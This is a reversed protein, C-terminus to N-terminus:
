KSCVYYRGETAAVGCATASESDETGASSKLTIYAQFRNGSDSDQYLCTSPIINSAIYQSLSGAIASCATESAVAPYQQNDNYYLRLASKLQNLNNKAQVDAARERMGTLNPLIFAALIGIISIVVLIEILTFGNLQTIRKM